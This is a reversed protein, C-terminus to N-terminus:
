LEKLIAHTYNYISIEPDETKTETHIKQSLRVNNQQWTEM